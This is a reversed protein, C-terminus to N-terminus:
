QIIPLVLICSMQIVFLCFKLSVLNIYNNVHLLKIFLSEHLLSLKIIWTMSDSRRQGIQKLQRKQKSKGSMMRKLHSQWLNYFEIDHM